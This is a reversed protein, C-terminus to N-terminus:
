SKKIRAEDYRASYEKGNPLTVTIYIIGYEQQESPLAPSIEEWAIDKVGIAGSVFGDDHWNHSVATTSYILRSPEKPLTRSETAYIEIKIPLEVNNYEIMEENKDLLNVWVRIGDDEADADWDHGHAVVWANTIKSVWTPSPTEDEDETIVPACSAPMLAIVMLCSVVLCM